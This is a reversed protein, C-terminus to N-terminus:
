QIGHPSLHACQKLQTEKLLRADKKRNEKKGKHTSEKEGTESPRTCSLSTGWLLRSYIELHRIVVVFYFVLKRPARRQEKWFISWLHLKIHHRTCHFGTQSWKYVYTEEFIKVLLEVWRTEFEFNYRPADVSAYNIEILQM